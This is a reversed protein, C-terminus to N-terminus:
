KIKKRNKDYADDETSQICAMSDIYYGKIMGLDRFKKPFNDIGLEDDTFVSLITNRFEPNSKFLDKAQEITMKVQKEM